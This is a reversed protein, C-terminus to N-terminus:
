PRHSVAGGSTVYANLLERLKPTKESQAKFVSSYSAWKKVEKANNKLAATFFKESEAHSGHISAILARNFDLVTTYRDTADFLEAAALSRKAGELDDDLALCLAHNSFECAGASGELITRKLLRSGTKSDGQHILAFAVNNPSKEYGGFGRRVRRYFFFVLLVQFVLALPILWGSIQKFKEKDGKAVDPLLIEAKKGISNQSRVFVEPLLRSSQDLVVSITIAESPALSPIDVDLRNSSTSTLTFFGIPGSSLTAARDVVHVTPPYEILAKIQNAALDGMNVIRISQLAVRMNQSQFEGSHQIEYTLHESRPKPPPEKTVYYIVIGAVVTVVLTATSGIAIDKWNAM